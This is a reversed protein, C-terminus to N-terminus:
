EEDEVEELSSVKVQHLPFVYTFHRETKVMDQTKTSFMKKITKTFKTKKEDFLEICGDATRIGDSKYKKNNLLVTVWKKM